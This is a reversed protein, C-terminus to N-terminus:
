GHRAAAQRESIPRSFNQTRPSAKVASKDQRQQQRKRRLARVVDYFAREVNVCNRASAEVFERDLEKVLAYGELTAVERETFRDSRNGVLMVPASTYASWDVPPAIPPAILPSNPCAPSPGYSSEKVRQIQRHFREIRQFSSRSTISYVLVFGEGDRIWQDRLATYEEQGGTDLVEIM